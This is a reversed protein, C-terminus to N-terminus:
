KIFLNLIQLGADIIDGVVKVTNDNKVIENMDIDTDNKVVSGLYNYAYSPNDFYDVYLIKIPLKNELPNNDYTKLASMLTPDIKIYVRGYFGSRTDTSGWKAKKEFYEAKAEDLKLFTPLEKPRLFFDYPYASYFVIVSKEKNYDSVYDLHYGGKDFDYPKISSKDLVNSAGKEGTKDDLYYVQNFDIEAIKKQIEQTTAERVRKLTFVDHECRQGLEPNTLKLYTVIHKDNITVGSCRLGILLIDLKTIGKATPLTPKTVGTIIENYYVISKAGLLPLHYRFYICIPLAPYKLSKIRAIINNEENWKKGKYFGMIVAKNYSLDVDGYGYLSPTDWSVCEWRRGSSPVGLQITDGIQFVSGEYEKFSTDSLPTFNKTFFSMDQASGTLTHAFLLVGLLYLRTAYQKIHQTYM